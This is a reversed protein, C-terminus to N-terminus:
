ESDDHNMFIPLEEKEEETLQKHERKRWIEARAAAQAFHYNSKQTQGMKHALHALTLDSEQSAKNQITESLKNTAKHLDRILSSHEKAVKTQEDFGYKEKKAKKSGIPRETFQVMVTGVENIRAVVSADSDENENELTGDVLDNNASANFPSYKPMKHIVELSSMLTFDKGEGEKYLEMAHNNYMEETWGSKKPDRAQLWYHNFKLITPAIRRQFRNKCTTLDRVVYATISPSNKAVTNWTTTIKQWYVDGTQNNGFIPDESTNM